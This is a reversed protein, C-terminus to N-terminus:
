SCTETLTKHPDRSREGSDQHVCSKKTHTGELLRNGWVQKLEPLEMTSNIMVEELLAIGYGPRSCGSGRHFAVSSWFRWLPCETM